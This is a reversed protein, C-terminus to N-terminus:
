IALIDTVSVPIIEGTNDEWQCTIFVWGEKYSSIYECFPMMVGSTLVCHVGSIIKRSRHCKRIGDKCQVFMNHCIKQIDDYSAQLFFHEKVCYLRNHVRKMKMELNCYERDTLPMESDIIVRTKFTEKTPPKTPGTAYLDNIYDEIEQRREPSLHPDTIKVFQLPKLLLFLLFLLQKNILTGMNEEITHKEQDSKAMDHKMEKELFEEKIIEMISESVGAFIVGLGLLLLFIIEMESRPCVRRGYFSIPIDSQPYDVHLQELTAAMAEEDLENEWFLLVLFIIVMLIMLPILDKVHKPRIGTGSVIKSVQSVDTFFCLDSNGESDSDIMAIYHLDPPFKLIGKKFVDKLAQRVRENRLAYIFPNLLLTVFTTVVTVAWNTDVSGSQSPRVYLFIADPNAPLGNAFLRACEPSGHHGAMRSFRNESDSGLGGSTSENERGQAREESLVPCCGEALVLDMNEFTQWQENYTGLCSSPTM